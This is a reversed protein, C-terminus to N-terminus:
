HNRNRYRAELWGDLATGVGAMTDWGSSHGLQGVGVYVQMYPTATAAFSPLFQVSSRRRACARQPRRLTLARYMDNGDQRVCPEISQWLLKAAAAEGVRHLAVMMGGLFDDGSPTLGPGLGAMAGVWATDAPSQQEFKTLTHVVWTRGRGVLLRLPKNLLTSPLKCLLLNALFRGLGSTRRLVRSRGHPSCILALGSVIPNSRVPLDTATVLTGRAVISHSDLQRDRIQSRSIRAPMHMRAGSASWSTSSPAATIINLPGRGVDRSAICIYQKGTAIYFTSKSLAIIRGVHSSSVCHLAVRGIVVAPVEFPLPFEPMTLWM